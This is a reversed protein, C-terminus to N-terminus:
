SGRQSGRGRRQDLRQLFVAKACCGDGCWITCCSYRFSNIASMVSDLKYSSTGRMARHLSSVSADVNRYTAVIAVKSSEESDMLEIQASVTRRFLSLM